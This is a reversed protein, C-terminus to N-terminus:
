FYDLSSLGAKATYFGIYLRLEAQSWARLRGVRTVVVMAVVRKFHSYYVKYHFARTLSQERLCARGNKPGTGFQVKGKNKLERLRGSLSWEFDQENLDVSLHFPVSRQHDLFNSTILKATDKDFIFVSM